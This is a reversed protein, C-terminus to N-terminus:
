KRNYRDYMEDIEIANIIAMQSPLPEVGLLNLYEEADLKLFRSDKQYDMLYDGTIDSRSIQLAM